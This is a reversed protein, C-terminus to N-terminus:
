IDGAIARANHFTDEISYKDNEYRVACFLVPEGVFELASRQLPEAKTGDKNYLRPLTLVTSINMSVTATKTSKKGKSMIVFSWLKHNYNVYIDGNLVFDLTIRTKKM